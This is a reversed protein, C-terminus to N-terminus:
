THPLRNIHWVAVAYGADRTNLAHVLATVKLTRQSQVANSHTSECMKLITNM